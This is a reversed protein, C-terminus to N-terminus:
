DLRFLRASIGPNFSSGLLNLPSIPWVEEHTADSAEAALQKPAPHM